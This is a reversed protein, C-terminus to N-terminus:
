INIYEFCDPRNAIGIRPPAIWAAFEGPRLAPRMLSEVYRNDDASPLLPNIPVPVVGARLAGWFVIPFDVTDPLFGTIRRERGIGSRGQVSAFPRSATALEAYHM